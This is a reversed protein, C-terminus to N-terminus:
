KGSKPTEGALQLDLKPEDLPYQLKQEEKQLQEETERERADTDVSKM